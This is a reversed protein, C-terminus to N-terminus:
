CCSGILEIYNLRPVAVGNGSDNGGGGRGM